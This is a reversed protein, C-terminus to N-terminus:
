SKKISRDFVKVQKGQQQQLYQYATLAAITGQGTAITIQKFEVQTVDGAAFVGSESTNCKEDVVIQAWEDRKVLESFIDTSAIRGIEIFLGNIEVEQTENSVRNNVIIKEVKSEGIIEKVESNLLIEINPREKIQEVLSEFGRFDQNRHILYVKAAIKSMVEAADLASNGGGIVAVTKGKFFPGDCNACYSVGKGMFKEEGVIALRKPILGMAIIITKATYMDKETYVQFLGEAKAIQKVEALVLEIGAAKINDEFRKILELNGISDFGPYNEIDGAITLQGGVERSIILTKMERRSTYIGAAVGAPGAGIIITDYIM